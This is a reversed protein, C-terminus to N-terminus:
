LIVKQPFLDPNMDIVMFNGDVPIAPCNVVVTQM